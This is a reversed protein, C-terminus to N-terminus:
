ARYHVQYDQRVRVERREESEFDVSRDVRFIGQVTFAPSGLTGRWGSLGSGADDGNVAAALALAAAYADAGSSAAAWCDVQVRAPGSRNGGRHHYDSVDDVLQVRISPQDTHQQVVLMYIRDGVLVTVAAIQSLRAIVAEEPSM